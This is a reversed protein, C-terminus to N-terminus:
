LYLCVVCHVALAAFYIRFNRACIFINPCAHKRTQCTYIYVAGVVALEITTAASFQAGIRVMMNSRIIHMASQM